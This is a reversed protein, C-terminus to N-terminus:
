KLKGFSITATSQRKAQKLTQIGGSVGTGSGISSGLGSGAQTTSKLRSPERREKLSSGNNVGISSTNGNYTGTTGTTSSLTSTGFDNKGDDDAEESIFPLRNDASPADEFAAREAEANKRAIEELFSNGNGDRAM